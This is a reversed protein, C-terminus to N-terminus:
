MGFFIYLYNSIKSSKYKLVIHCFLLFNFRILVKIVRIRMLFLITNLPVTTYVIEVVQDTIVHTAWILM